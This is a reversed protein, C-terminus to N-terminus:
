QAEGCSNWREIVQLVTIDDVLPADDELEGRVFSGWNEIYNLLVQNAVPCELNLGAVTITSNGAIQKQDGLVEATGSMNITSGESTGERVRLGYRIETFPVSNVDRLLWVIPNSSKLPRLADEISVYELEQPLNETIIIGNFSDSRPDALLRATFTTGPIIQNRPLHREVVFHDNQPDFVEFPIRVEETYEFTSLPSRAADSEKWTYRVIVNYHGLPLTNHVNTVGSTLGFPGMMGYGFQAQANNIALDPNEVQKIEANRGWAIVTKGTQREMHRVEVPFSGETGSAYRRQRADGTPLVQVMEFYAEPTTPPEPGTITIPIEHNWDTYPDNSHRWRFTFRLRYNGASLRKSAIDGVYTHIGYPDMGGRNIIEAENFTFVRTPNSESILTTQWSYSAGEGRTNGANSIEAYNITFRYPILQPTTTYSSNPAPSSETISPELAFAPLAFLLALVALLKVRFDM